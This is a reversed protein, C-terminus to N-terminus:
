FSYVKFKLKWITKKYLDDVLIKRWRENMEHESLEVENEYDHTNRIIVCTHFFM